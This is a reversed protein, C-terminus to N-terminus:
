IQSSLGQIKAIMNIQLTLFNKSFAILGAFRDNHPKCALAFKKPSPWSFYPNLTDALIQLVKHSTARTRRSYHAGSNSCAHSGQSRRLDPITSLPKSRRLYRHTQISLRSSPTLHVPSPKAAYSKKASSFFLRRTYAFKSVFRALTSDILRMPPFSSSRALYSQDQIQLQLLPSFAKSFQSPYFIM